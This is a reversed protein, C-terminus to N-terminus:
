VVIELIVPQAILKDFRLKINTVMSAVINALAGARKQSRIFETEFISTRIRTHSRNQICRM